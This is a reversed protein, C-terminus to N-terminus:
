RIEKDKTFGIRIVKQNSVGIIMLQINFNKVKRINRNIHNLGNKADM